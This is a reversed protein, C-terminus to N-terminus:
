KIMWTNKKYTSLMINTINLSVWIYLLMFNVIQRTYVLVNLMSQRCKDYWWISIVHMYYEYAIYYNSRIINNIQINSNIIYLVLSLSM